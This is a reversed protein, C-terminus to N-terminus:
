MQMGELEKKLKERSQRLQEERRANESDKQNTITEEQKQRRKEDSKDVLPAVEGQLSSVEEQLESPSKFSVSDSILKFMDSDSSNKTVQGDLETWDGTKISESITRITNERRTEQLQQENLVNAM